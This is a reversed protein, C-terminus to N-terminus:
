QPVGGKGRGQFDLLKLYTNMNMGVNDCSKYCDIKEFYPHSKPLELAKQRFEGYPAVEWIKSFPKIFINGMPFKGAKCCPIVDGDVNIRAYTWGVTCPLRDIIHREYQQIEKKSAKLRRMFSGVGLIEMPHIRLQGSGIVQNWCNKKQRCTDCKATDFVFTVSFDDTSLRKEISQKGTPCRIAGHDPLYSFGKPLTRYLRGFEVLEQELTQDNLRKIHDTGIFDKTFDPRKLIDKFQDLLSELTSPGPRLHDTKGPVVDIMQFEVADAGMELAFDVMSGIREANETSIVHYIKLRPFCESTKLTTLFSLNDHIRDFLDPSAGPHTRLYTETDGAWVSATISTVELDVLRRVMEQDLLTFNTIIACDMGLNKVNEIIKWIEPHLFPEGSGSLQITRTGLRSAEEILSLVKKGSLHQAKKQGKFKDDGLLPSHCWCGICQLNCNNTLDIELLEPGAYVGKRSRIGKIIPPEDVDSSQRDSIAPSNIATIKKEFNMYREIIRKRHKLLADQGRLYPKLSPILKLEVLLIALEKMKKVRYSFNSYSGDHWKKAPDVKPLVIGYKEPFMEIDCGPQIRCTTLTNIENIYSKNRQLFSVTKLFDYEEESPFGVMIGMVTRIGSAHAERIANEVAMADFPKGMLNLIRDSGNIFGFDLQICGAEVMEKFLNKDCSESIYRAKWKLPIRGQTVLNCFRSLFDPSSNIAKDLFSYESISNKRFHYQIEEYVDKPERVKHPGEECYVSCFSCRYPCGRSLRTPLIGAVFTDVAFEEYLPFPFKSLNRTPAPPIYPRGHVVVGPVAANITNERNSQILRRFTTEYEQFIIGDILDFPLNKRLTETKCGSGWLIVKQSQNRSKTASVFQFTETLNELSAKVAVFNVDIEALREVMKGIPELPESKNWCAATSGYKKLYELISATQYDPLANWVPHIFAIDLGGPKRSTAEKKQDEVRPREVFHKGVKIGYRACVELVSQRRKMRTEYTNSGDSTFWLENVREKPLVIDYDGHHNFLYTGRVLQLPTVADVRDIYEHLSELLDITKQFEAGNEGPFGVIINIATEIGVSKTNKITQIADKLVFKKRMRRLVIESGSELGFILVFCGARKMKRLLAKKLHKDPIALASWRINLHESIIRDCLRELHRPKGNVLSDYVVFETIKKKEYFKFEEIISEQERNRYRDWLSKEKCFACNSICGRSWMVAAVQKGYDNFSFGEYDPYDVKTLDMPDNLSHPEMTKNYRCDVVNSVDIRCKTTQENLRQILGALPKEGEGVVMFDIQNDTMKKLFNREGIAACAPGGVIIVKEPSISKLKKIIQCSIYQNPDVLSFGILRSENSALEDVLEDIGRLGAMTKDIASKRWLYDNEVNWLSKQSTNSNLKYLKINLDFIEYQINARKLYRALCGLSIPPHDIGWPPCITLTLEASKDTSSIALTATNATNSPCYPSSRSGKKIPIQDRNLDGRPDSSSNRNNYEMKGYNFTTALFGLGM